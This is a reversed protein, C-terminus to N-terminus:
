THEIDDILGQLKASVQQQQQQLQQSLEDYKSAYDLTLMGLIDILDKSRYQSSMARIREQIEQTVRLVSHKDQETTKVPYQREGIMLQLTIQKKEKM